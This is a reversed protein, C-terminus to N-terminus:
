EKVDRIDFFNNCWSCKLVRTPETDYEGDFVRYTAQARKDTDTEHKLTKECHPCRIKAAM